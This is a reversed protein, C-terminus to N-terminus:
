HLELSLQNSKVQLVKTSQYFDEISGPQWWGQRPKEVLDYRIAPIRGPSWRWGAPFSSKDELVSNGVYVLKAKGERVQLPEQGRFQLGLNWELAINLAVHHFQNSHTNPKEYLAKPNFAEPKEILDHDYAFSYSNTIFRAEDMHSRFYEAYGPVYVKWFIDEFQEITGEKTEWAIRWNGHGHQINWSKNYADRDGGVYGIREVTKWEISM